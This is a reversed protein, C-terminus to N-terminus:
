NAIGSNHRAAHERYRYKRFEVDRVYDAPEHAGSISVAPINDNGNLALRHALHGGGGCDTLSLIGGVVVAAGFEMGVVAGRDRGGSGVRGDEM